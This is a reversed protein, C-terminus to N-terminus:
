AAKKRAKARKKEVADIALFVQSLESLSAYKRRLASLDRLADEMLTQMQDPDSAVQTIPFYARPAPGKHNEDEPEVPLSVYRRFRTVRKGDGDGLEQKIYFERILQRARDKLYIEHAKSKNWEFEGHLPSTKSRAEQIVGEITLSGNEACMADLREIVHKRM